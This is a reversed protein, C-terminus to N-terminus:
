ATQGSYVRKFAFEVGEGAPFCPSKRKCLLLWRACQVGPLCTRVTQALAAHETLIGKDGEDGQCVGVCIGWRSGARVAESPM